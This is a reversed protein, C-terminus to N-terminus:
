QPGAVPLWGRTLFDSMSLVILIALWFFGAAAYVWIVRSSYRIHMFYLIILVAKACAIAMAAVSNLLGLDFQAMILTAALLGLLALFVLVYTKRSTTPGSNM